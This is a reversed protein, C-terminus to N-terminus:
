RITENNTGTQAYDLALLVDSLLQHSCSELCMIFDYRARDNESPTLRKYPHPSEQGTM